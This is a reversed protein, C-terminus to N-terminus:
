RAGEAYPYFRDVDIRTNTYMETLRDLNWERVLRNEEEDGITLMYSANHNGPVGDDLREIVGAKTLFAFAASIRSNATNVRQKRIEEARRLATEPDLGKLAQQPVSALSFDEIIQARGRRWLRCTYRKDMHKRRMPWDLTEEALYMLLKEAFDNGKLTMSKEHFVLLEGNRIIEKVRRYNPSGMICMEKRKRGATPTYQLLFSYRNGHGERNTKWVEGRPGKATEWCVVM